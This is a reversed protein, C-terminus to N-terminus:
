QATWAGDIPISAGTINHAERRCLWVATDAVEEPLSMRLSPQKEKLLEQIGIERNGEFM